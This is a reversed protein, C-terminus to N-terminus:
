RVQYNQSLPLSADRQETMGTLVPPFSQDVDIYRAFFDEIAKQGEHNSNRYKELFRYTKECLHRDIKGAQYLRVLVDTEVRDTVNHGTLTLVRDEGYSYYERVHAIEHVIVLNRFLRRMPPANKLEALMAIQNRYNDLNIGHRSLVYEYDGDSFLYSDIQVEANIQQGFSKPFHHASITITIPKDFLLPNFGLADHVEEMALFELIESTIWGHEIVHRTRAFTLAHHVPHYAVNSLSCGMVMIMVTLYKFLRVANPWLDQRLAAMGSGRCSTRFETFRSVGEGPHVVLIQTHSLSVLMGIIVSIDM